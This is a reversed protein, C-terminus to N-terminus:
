VHARGIEGAGSQTTNSYTGGSGGGGIAIIRAWTCGSPVTYTGSSTFEQVDRPQGSSMTSPYVDFPM